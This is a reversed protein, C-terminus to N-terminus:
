QFAAHRLSMPAGLNQGFSDSSGIRARHRSACGAGGGCGGGIQRSGQTTVSARAPRTPNPEDIVYQNRIGLQDGASPIGGALNVRQEIWEFISLKAIGILDVAPAAVCKRPVPPKSRSSWAFCDLKILDGRCAAHAALSGNPSKGTKPEPQEQAGTPNSASVLPVHPFQRRIHTNHSRQPDRTQCGLTAPARRWIATM